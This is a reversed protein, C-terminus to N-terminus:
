RIKTFISRNIYITDVTGQDPEAGVEQRYYEADDDDEMNTAQQSEAAALEMLRVIHQFVYQSSM